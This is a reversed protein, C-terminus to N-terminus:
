HPRKKRKGGLSGGFSSWTEANRTDHRCKGRPQGCDCMRVPSTGRTRIKPRSLRMLVLIAIVVIVLFVLWGM